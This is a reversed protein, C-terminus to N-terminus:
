CPRGSLPAIAARVSDDHGADARSRLAVVRDHNDTGARVPQRNGRVEGVRADVDLHEPPRHREPLLVHRRAHEQTRPDTGGADGVRSHSQGQRAELRRRSRRQPFREADLREEGIRLPKAGLQPELDVFPADFADRSGLVAEADRERVAFAELRAADDDSRSDARKGRQRATQLADRRTQRGVGRAEGVRGRVLTSPHEDDSGTLARDLICRQELFRTRVDLHDGPSLADAPETVLRGGASRPPRYATEEVCRGIDPRGAEVPERRQRPDDVM